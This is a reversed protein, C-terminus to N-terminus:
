VKRSKIYLYIEAFFLNICWSLWSIFAYEEKANLHFFMPFVIALLRLTIASLTLAYSRIMWSQHTEYQKRYVKYLAFLTFSIWLISLVIFSLSAQWNGNSYIGMILGSPGAICIVDVVYIYGMTRHIKTSRKLIYDSFQTLGTILTLISFFVHAYFAYRWHKVHIINQKTALFDIDPKLSFYPLSLQLMLYSFFAILITWIIAKVIKM